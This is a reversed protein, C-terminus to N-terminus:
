FRPQRRLWGLRALLNMINKKNEVYVSMKMSLLLVLFVSLITVITLNYYDIDIQEQLLSLALLFIPWHVIYLTYSYASSKSFYKILLNNIYYKKTSFFAIFVAAFCSYLLGMSYLKFVKMVQISDFLYTNVILVISLLFILLVAFKNKTIINNQHMLAVAAGSCWVLFGSFFAGAQDSFLLFTFMLVLLLLAIYSRGILFMTILMAIVYFWFEHSLSWLPGNISPTKIVDSINHLFLLSGFFESLNLEFREVVHHFVEGGGMSFSTKGNLDLTQVTLFILLVLLSSFLLPPYLRVLRDILYKKHNFERFSYTSINRYISNMIMYGSISFFVMVAGGAAIKSIYNGVESYLYPRWLV